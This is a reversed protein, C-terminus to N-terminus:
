AGFLDRTKELEPTQEVLQRAWALANHIEEGRLHRGRQLTRRRNFASYPEDPKKSYGTSIDPWASLVSQSESDIGFFQTCDQLGSEPQDLWEEFNFMRARGPFDVVAALMLNVCTLWALVALQPEGLQQLQLPPAKEIRNWDSLRSPAHGKLDLGPSQKGLMGALFCELPVYMLIARAHKCANDALNGVIEM